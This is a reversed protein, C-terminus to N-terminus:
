LLVYEANDKKIKIFKYVLGHHNRGFLPNQNNGNKNTERYKGEWYSKPRM